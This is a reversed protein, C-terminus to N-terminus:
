KSIIALMELIFVFEEMAQSYSLVQSNHPREVRAILEALLLGLGQRVLQWM